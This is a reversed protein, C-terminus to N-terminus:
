VRMTRLLEDVAMKGDPTQKRRYQSRNEEPGLYGSVTGYSFRSITEETVDGTELVLLALEAIDRKLLRMYFLGKDPRVEIVRKLELLKYDQGIATAPGVESGNILRRLLVGPANIRGRSPHRHHMGYSLAAVFAKALDLADEEFPNGYKAFSAPEPLYIVEEQPNSVTSLDYLGIARMKGLLAAGLITEARPLELCGESALLADIENLRRRDDANLSGLIKSTKEANGRKFLNGNFFVKENTNTSESDIFQILESQRVLEKVQLTALRQSDGIQELLEKEGRPIDSVSEALEIAALQFASPESARFIDSTHTLVSSTTVGLLSVSGDASMDILQADALQKTVVDFETKKIGCVRAVARVKAAPLTSEEDSAALSSLLAGCKGALEIDEFDPANTVEQIKRTHSIVWAGETRPEM